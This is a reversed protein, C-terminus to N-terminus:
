RCKIFSGLSILHGFKVSTVSTTFFEGALALSKLSAPEIGPHPLDGPFPYSLGNWYEQRSFGMSLPAQHAVTWPSAFLQVRSFRSLVWAQVGTM